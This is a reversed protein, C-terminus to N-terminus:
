LYYCVENQAVHNQAHDKWM